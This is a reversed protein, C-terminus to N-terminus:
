PQPRIRHQGAQVTRRAQRMQSVRHRSGARAGSAPRRFIMRRPPQAEEALRGDLLAAFGQRRVVLVARVIALAFIVGVGVFVIGVM